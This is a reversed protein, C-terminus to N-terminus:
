GRSVAARLRALDADAFAARPLIAVAGRATTLRLFVASASVDVRRVASVQMESRGMASSMALMQGDCGAWFTSGPPFARAVSSRTLGYVLAAIVALLVLWLGVMVVGFPDGTAVTLVVAGATLVGAVVWLAIWLPRTLTWSTYERALRGALGADAVAGGATAGDTPQAGGPAAPAVPPQAADAPQAADPPQATDATARPETGPAPTAPATPEPEPAFPTQDM